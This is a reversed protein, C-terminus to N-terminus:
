GLAVRMLTYRAAVVATSTGSAGSTIARDEGVDVLQWGKAGLAGLVDAAREPLSGVIAGGEVLADSPHATASWCEVPPVLMTSLLLDVLQGDSLGAFGQADRPSEGITAVIAEDIRAQSDSPPFRQISGNPFTVQHVKAFRGKGFSQEVEKVHYEARLADRREEWAQIALEDVARQERDIRRHESLRAGGDARLAKRFHERAADPDSGEFSLDQCVFADMVSRHFSLILYEYDPM